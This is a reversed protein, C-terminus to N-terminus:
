KSSYYFDRTHVHGPDRFAIGEMELLARKMKAGGQYGGLSGDSRIARHCPIVVPFPNKALANGAARAAGPHGLHGAILGYTSVWGRPIAHEATLVKRQFVPCNQLRVESLSFRIDEGKLFAEIRRALVDAEACSAPKM